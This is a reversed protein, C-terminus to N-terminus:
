KGKADDQAQRAKRSIRRRESEELIRKRLRISTPTVEVLEDPGIFEIAEELSFVRPPTLVINEDAGAARINNLKKGKAANVPLDNDRAHLGVLQGMYINEGPAVFMQGRDQLAYLAFGRATGNETAILVGNARGRPAAKIPKYEHFVHNLTGTGRTDTLFESRYGILGRSPVSWNMRAQGDPTVILDLLEGGRQNMKQIVAGSHAEGCDIVVDEFPEEHGRETEHVIVRPQGLALEFGERRMSEVLVSLHLTGRGSVEFVDRQAGIRVRLGVNALAERELRAKIQSSTVYKGEKGSFPSTNPMFTMSLTPEDIPIAPLPEPNEASCITDGVTTGGAGALAVIDGAVVQEADVRKLGDFHMLKTVRFTERTGDPKVTVANMGRRITGRYVRGIAIRGLFESYDLTAVQFQLPAAHDAPPAPAHEVIMEFLPSLDKREHDLEQVAYGDRAAAYCHPFDLQEDTAELAVFLDFVESLVADARADKRDIKNICVLVQHGLELSKRLVFRTQPMPGEAADVLLLVSDVIRLVREVESGFDAHGPTDVINIRTGKWDVATNKALITIGREREQDNSDMMREAMDGHERLAGSQRLFGDLMTTKGHDVHAVIAINRIAVGTTPEASTSQTM